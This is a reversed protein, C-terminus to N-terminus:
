ELWRLMEKDSVQRSIMIQRRKLETRKRTKIIEMLKPLTGWECCLVYLLKKLEEAIISYKYQQWIGESINKQLMWLHNRYSNGNTIKSKTKRYNIKERLTMGVTSRATRDHYAVANGVVYSQWGAHRLRFALDVDEKYAFFDNDLYQGEYAVSELASKRYIPVTGSVGFVETDESYEPKDPMGVLREIAKGSRFMQLGLSDIMNTKSSELLRGTQVDFATQWRLIKGSVSGAHPHSELFNVCNELYDPELIVDPNLLFIYQSLSDAMVQNHPREFGMNETNRKLEFRGSFQSAFSECIRASNDSSNNDTIVLNFDQFTQAALSRLNQDLYRASNWPILSVTVKNSM